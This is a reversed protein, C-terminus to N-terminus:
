SMLKKLAKAHPYNAKFLKMTNHSLGTLGMARYSKVMIALAGMVSPTGNYHVLIGSARNAAAVYAKRKLYFKAILLQKKAVINRIYQMRHAANVAYPSDPFEHVIRSFAMFAEKRTTLDRPAPDIHLFRQLITGGQYFTVLGKMYYAYAVYKGRPYLRIYRDAAAVTSVDEGNKYYAYILDLQAQEAYPGFPYIANLAQFDKVAKSYDHKALANEGEHFITEATKGKYAKFTTFSSGCGSLLVALIIMLLVKKM